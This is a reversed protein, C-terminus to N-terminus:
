DAGARIAPRHAAELLVKWHPPEGPSATTIAILTDGESARARAEPDEDRRRPRGSSSAVAGNDQASARPLSANRTAPRWRRALGPRRITGRELGKESAAKGGSRVCWRARRTRWNRCARM